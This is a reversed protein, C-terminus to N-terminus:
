DGEKWQYHTAVRGTLTIRQSTEVKGEAVLRKLLLRTHTASYGVRWSINEATTPTRDIMLIVALDRLTDNPM